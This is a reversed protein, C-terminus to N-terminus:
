DCASPQPDSVQSCWARLNDLAEDRDDGSLGSLQDSLKAITEIARHRGLEERVVNTVHGDFWAVFGTLGGSITVVAAIVMALRKLTEPTLNINM